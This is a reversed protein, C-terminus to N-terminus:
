CALSVHGPFFMFFKNGVAKLEKLMTECGETDKGFSKKCWLM